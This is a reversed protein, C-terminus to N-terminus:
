QFREHQGRNQNGGANRRFRGKTYGLEGHEALLGLLSKTIGEWLRDRWWHERRDEELVGNGCRPGGGCHRGM